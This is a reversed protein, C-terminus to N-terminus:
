MQVGKHYHCATNLDLTSEEKKCYKCIMSTKFDMSPLNKLSPSEFISINTIKNSDPPVFETQKPENNTETVVEKQVPATEEIKM